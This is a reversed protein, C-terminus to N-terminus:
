HIAKLLYIITILHELTLQYNISTQISLLYNLNNNKSYEQYKMWQQLKILITILYSMIRIIITIKTQNSKLLIKRLIIVKISPIIIM